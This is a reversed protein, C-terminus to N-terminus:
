PILRIKYRPDLRKVSKSLSEGPLVSGKVRIREPTFGFSDEGPPPTPPPNHGSINKLKKKLIIIIVFLWKTISWYISKEFILQTRGLFISNNWPGGTDSRFIRFWSDNCKNMLLKVQPNLIYIYIDRTYILSFTPSPGQFGRARCRRRLTSAPGKPSNLAPGGGEGLQAARSLNIIRTTRARTHVMRTRGPLFFFNVPYGTPNRIWYATVLSMTSM